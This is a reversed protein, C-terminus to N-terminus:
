TTRLKAGFAVGGGLTSWVNIRASLRSNDVESGARKSSRSLRDDRLAVTSGDPIQQRTPALLREALM